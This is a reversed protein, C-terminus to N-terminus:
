VVRVWAGLSTLYAPFFSSLLPVFLWSTLTRVLGLEVYGEHLFSNRVVSKEHGSVQMSFFLFTESMLLRVVQRERRSKSQARGAQQRLIAGRSSSEERLLHRGDSAESCFVQMSVSEGPGAVLSRSSGGPSKGPGVRYRCRRAAWSRGHQQQEEGASKGRVTLVAHM